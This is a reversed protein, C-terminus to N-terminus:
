VGRYGYITVFLGGLFVMLSLFFGITPVKQVNAPGAKQAQSDWDGMVYGFGLIGYFKGEVVVEDGVAYGSVSDIIVPISGFSGEFGEIILGPKQILLVNERVEAIKGKFKLPTGQAIEDEKAKRGAEEPTDVMVFPYLIIMLIVGIVMVAIGLGFVAPKM